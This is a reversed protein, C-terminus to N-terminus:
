EIDYNFRLCKFKTAQKYLLVIKYKKLKFMTIYVLFSVLPFKVSKDIKNKFFQHYHLVQNTAKDCAVVVDNEVSRARHCPALNQMVLTILPKNKDKDRRVRLLLM